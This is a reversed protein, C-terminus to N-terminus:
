KVQEKVLNEIINVLIKQTKEDSKNYTEKIDKITTIAKNNLQNQIQTFLKKFSTYEIIDIQEFVKKRIEEQVRKAEEIERQKNQTEIKKLEEKKVNELKKMYKDFNDLASYQNDFEFFRIKSNKDANNIIETYKNAATESANKTAYYQSSFLAEAKESIKITDTNEYYKFNYIYTLTDSPQKNKQNISGYVTCESIIITTKEPYSEKKYNKADEMKKLYTIKGDVNLICAINLIENTQKSGDSAKIFIVWNDNQRKAYESKIYPELDNKTKVDKVIIEAKSTTPFVKQIELSYTIQSYSYNMISLLIMVCLQRILIINIKNKKM